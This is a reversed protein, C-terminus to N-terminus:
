DWGAFLGPFLMALLALPGGILVMPIVGRKPEEDKKLPPGLGPKEKLNVKPLPKKGDLLGIMEATTGAYTTRLYPELHGFSWRVDGEVLQGALNFWTGNTYVFAVFEKDKQSVFAVASLKEAVRELLKPVEKRKKAGADGEGILVPLAKLETRGRLVRVVDLVMAPRKPDLSSVKVEAIFTSAEVLDALPTPRTILALAPACCALLAFLCWRRM